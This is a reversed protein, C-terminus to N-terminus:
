NKRGPIFDSLSFIESPALLKTELLGSAKAADVGAKLPRRAKRNLSALPVARVLEAPLNFSRAVQLAFDHRSMYESGAINLIGAAQLEIAEVIANSLNVTWIPNCFLDSAANVTEGKLLRDYVSTFLNAKGRGISDYLASTRVILKYGAWNEILQEAELKTQGYVNLPNPSADEPYPGSEGDFLYDTSIQVFRIREPDVVDLLKAVIGCNIRSALDANEECDDVDTMAASNVVVDCASAEILAKAANRDTLDCKAIMAIEPPETPFASTHIVATVRHQKAFSAVLRSGLM